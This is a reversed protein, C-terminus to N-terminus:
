GAERIRPHWAFLRREVAVMLTNTALGLLGAVVIAAYVLERDIGSLSHTLMWTGIGPGGGAILEASIGVILAIASAIRVGTAVFPAASPLTVLRVIARPGYGFARATDRALPDAERVGSVTNVLIPWLSAYAILAVRMDLGRGLLLIALPILAVSPIPRLFEVAALSALYGRRSTGLVLGLPVAICAAVALGGAWAALTAVMATLFEPDVLIRLTTVLVASAPPLYAPSVIEARTLAELVGLLAVAGVLGRRIRVPGRDGARAGSM